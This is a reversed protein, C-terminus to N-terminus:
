FYIKYKSQKELWDYADLIDVDDLFDWSLKKELSIRKSISSPM